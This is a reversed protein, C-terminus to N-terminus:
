QLKYGEINNFLRDAIGDSIDAGFKGLFGNEQVKPRYRRSLADPFHEEIVQELTMISDALGLEVSRPGNWVEGTFIDTEKSLNPRLNTIEEAFTSGAEKVLTDLAIRTEEPMALYPNMMDKKSGSAFVRQTVDFRDMVKQFDWGKLIAGISGVWSYKGVYLGDTHAAIMYAASACISSCAAYVKIGTRARESEIFAIIRESEAPAGGGSDIYLVIGQVYKSNFLKELVPIVADASARKGAAIPGEISVVAVTPQSPLASYGYLGSWFGLFVVASIVMCVGYFIRKFTTWRQTNRQHTIFDRFLVNFARRYLENMSMKEDDEYNNNDLAKMEDSRDSSDLSKKEQITKMQNSTNTDITSTM